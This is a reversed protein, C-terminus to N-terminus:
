KKQDIYSDYSEVNSQQYTITLKPITRCTDQLVNKFSSSPILTETALEVDKANKCRFNQLM